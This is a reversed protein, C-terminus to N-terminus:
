KVVLMGVFCLDLLPFGRRWRGFSCISAHSFPVLRFGFVCCAVRHLEDRYQSVCLLRPISIEALRSSSLISSPLISSSATILARNKQLSFSGIISLVRRGQVQDRLLIPMQVQSQCVLLESSDLIYSQKSARHIPRLPM